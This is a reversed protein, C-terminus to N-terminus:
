IEINDFSDISGNASFHLEWCIVENYNTSWGGISPVQISNNRLVQHYMKNGIYIYFFNLPYKAASGKTASKVGANFSNFTRTVNGFYSSYSTISKGALTNSKSVISGNSKTFSMDKSNTKGYLDTYSVQVKMETKSINKITYVTKRNFYNNSCSVENETQKYDGSDIFEDAIYASYFKDEGFSVFYNGSEWTGVISSLPPNENETEGDKPIENENSCSKFFFIPLMAMLFLIRKM